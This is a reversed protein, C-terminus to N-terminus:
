LASMTRSHLERLFKARLTNFLSYCTGAPLEPNIETTNEFNEWFQGLSSAVKTKRIRSVDVSIRHFRDSSDFSKLFPEGPHFKKFRKSRMFTHM